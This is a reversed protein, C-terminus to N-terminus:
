GLYIPAYKPAASGAATVDEAALNRYKDLQEQIEKMPPLSVSRGNVSVTEGQSVANLLIKYFTVWDENSRNQPDPLFSIDYSM